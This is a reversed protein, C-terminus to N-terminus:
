KVEFTVSESTVRTGDSLVAEAWAEHQGVTLPWWAQYPAENLSAVKVGDVWLIVSRVGLAGVAELRIQQAEAAYGPTFRYIAQEPPSILRIPQQSSSSPGGSAPNSAEVAGLLDSYITFGQSRAWPYAQMPLDLALRISRQGPPTEETALRNTATDVTVLRYFTDKATPQTGAIFWELRKFPCADTPLLGSLACIEVKVLGDPRDFSREPQGALVARMFNHWIPAAGTLGTVERMAEYTSNGAWVGVVLDPTYGVTWNDHFNSTTGTKVAAPRDLRLISNAGFSLRRADDDSLISSILWAVRADLVKQKIM